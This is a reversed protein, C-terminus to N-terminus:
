EKGTFNDDHLMMLSILAQNVVDRLKDEIQEKYQQGHDPTKLIMNRLRYCDGILTVVTGQLGLVEFTNKYIANREEFIVRCEVFEQIFASLTAAAREEEPTPIRFPHLSKAEQVLEKDRNPMPLEMQLQKPAEYPM